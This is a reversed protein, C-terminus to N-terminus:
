IPAIARLKVLTGKLEKIQDGSHGIGSIRTRHETMCVWSFIQGVERGKLLCPVRELLERIHLMLRVVHNDQIEKGYVLVNKMAVRVEESLSKPDVKRSKVDNTMQILECSYRYLLVREESLSLRKRLLDLLRQGYQSDTTSREFVAEDLKAYLEAVLREWLSRFQQSVTAELDDILEQVACEEVAAEVYLEASRQILGYLGEGFFFFFNSRVEALGLQDRQLAQEALRLAIDLLEKRDSSALIKIYPQLTSLPAKSRDLTQSQQLLFYEGYSRGDLEQHTEESLRRAKVLLDVLHFIPVLPWNGRIAEICRHADEYAVLPLLVHDEDELKFQKKMHYKELFATIKSEKRFPSSFLFYACVAEKWNDYVEIITDEDGTVIRMLQALPVLLPTQDSLNTSMKGYLTTMRTQFDKFQTRFASKTYDPADDGLYYSKRSHLANRLERIYDPTRGSSNASLYKDLLGLVLDIRGSGICNLALFFVATNPSSNKCLGLMRQEDGFHKMYWESYRQTMSLQRSILFIDSLEWQIHLNRLLNKEKVSTKPDKEVQERLNRLAVLYRSSARDRICM